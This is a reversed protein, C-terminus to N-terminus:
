ASIKCRNLYPKGNGSIQMTGDVTLTMGETFKIPYKDYGTKYDKTYIFFEFGNSTKVVITNALVKSVVVKENRLRDGIDLGAGGPGEGATDEIENVQARDLTAFKSGRSTYKSYMGSVSVRKGAYLDTTADWVFWMLGYKTGNEETIAQVALYFSGSKSTRREVNYIKCDFTKYGYFEPYQEVDGLGSDEIETKKASMKATFYMQLAYPTAWGGFSHAFAKDDGSTLNIGEVKIKEVFESSNDLGRFFANGNGMFDSLRKTIEVIHKNFFERIEVNRPPYDYKYKIASVEDWLAKYNLKTRNDLVNEMMMVSIIRKLDDMDLNNGGFVGGFSEGLKNLGAMYNSLKEVVSIGFIKTACNRGYYVLHEDKDMFIYYFSRTTKKGCGDCKIKASTRKLYEALELNSGFEDTLKVGSYLAETDNQDATTFPEVVGVFRYGGLRFGGKSFTVHCKYGTADVEAVKFYEMPIGPISKSNYISQNHSIEGLTNKKIWAEAAARGEPSDNAPSKLPRPMEVVVDAKYSFPEFVGIQINMEPDLNNMKRAFSSLSNQLHNKRLDIEAQLMEQVTKSDHYDIGTEPYFEGTSGNLLGVKIGYRLDLDKSMVINEGDGDWVNEESLTYVRRVAETIMGSLDDSTLRIKKYM